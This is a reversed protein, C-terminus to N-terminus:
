DASYPLEIFNISGNNVVFSNAPGTSENNNSRFTEVYYEGDIFGNQKHSDKVLDQMKCKAEHETCETCDIDRIINQTVQDKVRYFFKSCM